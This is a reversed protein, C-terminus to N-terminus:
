MYGCVHRVPKESGVGYVQLPNYGTSGALGATVYIDFFFFHHATAQSFLCCLLSRYILM